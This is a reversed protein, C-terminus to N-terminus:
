IDKLFDPLDTDDTADTLDSAVEQGADADQKKMIPDQTKQALLIKAIVFESHEVPIELTHIENGIEGVITICEALEYNHGTGTVARGDLLIEALMLESKTLKFDLEQTENNIEGAITLRKYRVTEGTEQNKFAKESIKTTTM